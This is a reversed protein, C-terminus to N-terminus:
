TLPGEPVIGLRLGGDDLAVVIETLRGHKLRLAALAAGAHPNFADNVALALDELARETNDEALLTFVGGPAHQVEVLTRARGPKPWPPAPVLARDPGHRQFVERELAKAGHYFDGSPNTPRM